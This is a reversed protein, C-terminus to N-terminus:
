DYEGDTSFGQEDYDGMTMDADLSEEVSDKDLDNLYDAISMEWDLVGGRNRNFIEIQRLAAMVLLDSHNETWFSTSSDSTLADQYFKGIVEIDTASSPPPLVFVGNYTKDISGVVDANTLIVELDALTLTEPNPSMRPVVPSWYSPTGQTTTALRNRFGDRDNPDGGRLRDYDFKGLPKRVGSSFVWVGKIVRCRSLPIYFQGALLRAFRSARSFKFECKRDLFNQGEQIYANAGNDAGAETELDYRGSRQILTQRVAALTM